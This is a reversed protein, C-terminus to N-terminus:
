RGSGLAILQRAHDRLNEFEDRRDIWLLGKEADVIESHEAFAQPWQREAEDLHRQAVPRLHLEALAVALILHCMAPLDGKELAGEALVVVEAPRGNALRAQALIRNFRPDDLDTSSFAREALRLAERPDRHEPLTLYLRALLLDNRYDDNDKNRAAGFSDLAAPDGTSWQLMGLTRWFGDNYKSDDRQSAAGVAATATRLAEHFRRQLALVKALNSAAYFYDPQLELSRRCAQEAGALDGLAMLIVGQLNWTQHANPEIALAEDCLRAAEELDDHQRHSYGQNFYDVKLWRANYFLARHSAPDAVLADRFKDRAANLRGLQELALGQNVLADAEARIRQQWNLAGFGACLVVITAVAALRLRHRGVTKRLVYWTSDRKAEIPEGALYHRLDRALGAASQYRREPQKCLAKLVITELEGDIHRRLKSPRIPAANMINDLVDRMSGVVAYPFRGTLMHYLMVGLSYVDSRIDIEDPNGSAQEPSAWPLSGLFQGELTMIETASQQSAAAPTLKALGFDLVHPEGSADIRVNGPKLDRHIIGRLHAASVADCIKALMTLTEPVSRGQSTAWIDLTPGPIYDMVYFFQGASEGSDHITVINPHSLQGLIHIEREFRAKDRAGAFPGEHMVKIAVRRRTSQQVAQYVVGQAGRRIERTISYGSFSDDPPLRQARPQQFEAVERLASEILLRERQLLDPERSPRTM